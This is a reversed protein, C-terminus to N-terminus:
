ATGSAAPRAAVVQDLSLAGMWVDLASRAGSDSARGDMATSVSAAAAAGVGGVVSPSPPLASAPSPSVSVDYVSSLPVTVTHVLSPGAGSSPAAAGSQGSPLPLSAARQPGRSGPQAASRRPSPSAPIPPPMMISRSARTLFDRVPIRRSHFVAGRARQAAHIMIDANGRQVTVAIQRQVAMRWDDASVLCTVPDLAACLKTIFLRASAHFGGYTYLVIPSFEAELGLAFEDYTDRKAAGAADGVAAVGRGSDSAAVPTWCKATPHVVTVDGLLTGDPLEVQIDPRLKRQEHLDGPEIRVPINALRVFDQLDHVVRHHRRTIDAGCKARCCLPHWSDEAAARKHACSVGEIDYSPNGPLGLRLRAATCWQTRGMTLGPATPLTTLWLSAQHTGLALLRALKAQGAPSRDRGAIAKAAINTLISIRHSVSHQILSQAHHAKFHAVFHEASSPLISATVRAVLHPPSPSILAAETRQVRALSDAIGAYLTCSPDLPETGAWVAAFVPSLRLTCEAGALYAAAAVGAASTLGFGGPGLSQQLQRDFATGDDPAIGVMAHAAELLQADYEAAHADTAAPPMARLRNNIVISTLRRLVFSRHQEHMHPIRRFAARSDARFGPHTALERAIDAPTAGVVCGLVRLCKRNIAVGAAEFSQLAANDGEHQLGDLHFCTLECKAPNVSLKLPALLERLQQWVAWCQQLYGVGHGDDAFAFVGAQLQKAMADYIPHLALGFLMASLPDGQRVGSQSELFAETIPVDVGCKMLLPSSHGYAFDVIRWCRALEPHSYVAQLIARRDISNFANQMDISLCALPRAVTSAPDPALQLAPGPSGSEHHPGPQQSPLRPPAELLHQLSQVIQTCGDPQGVGYQHPRVIRRADDVVLTLAYRAAFKYFMDGIAIPRRGDNPKELSVVLCCTLLTRVAPPLAANYIQQVFYSLAEVCHIDTALVSIFNSAYGSVGPAAGSDSARMEAIMWELVVVGAPSDAPRPLLVSTCPPHLAAVAAREAPSNLDAKDTTSKVMQVARNLYGKRILSSARSAAAIDPDPEHSSTYELDSTGLISEDGAPASESPRPDTSVEMESEYDWDYDPAHSDFFLEMPHCLEDAVGLARDYLNPDNLNRAIRRLQAQRNKAGGRVKGPITFVEQPLVWLALIRKTVLLEDLPVACLAAYLAQLAERCRVIWTPVMSIHCRRALQGRNAMKHIWARVNALLQMAAHEFRNSPRSRPAAAVLPGHSRGDAVSPDSSNSGSDAPRSVAGPDALDTRAAAPLASPARAARPPRPLAPPGPLRDRVVLPPDSPAFEDDYRVAPGRLRLPRRYLRGRVAALRSSLSPLDLSGSARDASDSSDPHQDIPFPETSSYDVREHDITRVDAKDMAFARLALVVPDDRPFLTQFGGDDLALGVSEFHGSGHSPVLAFVIISDPHCGSGFDVVRHAARGDGHRYDDCLVLINLRLVGAAVHFFIEGMHYTPAALASRFMALERTPTRALKECTCEGHCHCRRIGNHCEFTWFEDRVNQPINQCWERVTWATVASAIFQSRLTILQGLSHVLRHPPLQSDPLSDDAGEPELLDLFLAGTACSGDPVVFMRRLKSGNNRLVPDKHAFAKCWFGPLAYRPQEATLRTADFSSPLSMTRGTFAAPAPDNTASSGHGAIVTPPSANDIELYSSPVGMLPDSSENDIMPCSSPVAQDALSWPLSSPLTAPIMPHSPNCLSSPSGHSTM